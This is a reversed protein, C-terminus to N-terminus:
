RIFYDLHLRRGAREILLDVHAATRLAAVAVRAADPSALSQGNAELLIDGGVLGLAAFPGDARM